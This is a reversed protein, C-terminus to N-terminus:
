YCSLAAEVTRASEHPDIITGGPTLEAKGPGCQDAFTAVTASRPTTTVDHNPDTPSAPVPHSNIIKRQRHHIEQVHDPHGPRVDILVHQDLEGRQSAPERLGDLRGMR